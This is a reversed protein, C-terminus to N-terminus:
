VKISKKRPPTTLAKEISWGNQIRYSFTKRQIGYAKCMLTLSRYRIGKHDYCTTGGNPKAPVTLSKELTWKYINLRRSLCASTLNYAKAMSSFSPYTNGKHDICTKSHNWNFKRKRM